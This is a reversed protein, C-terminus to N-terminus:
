TSKVTMPGSPFKAGIKEIFSYSKNLSEIYSGEKCVIIISYGGNRKAEVVKTKFKLVPHVGLKGILVTIVNILLIKVM